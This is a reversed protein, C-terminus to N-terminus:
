KAGNSWGNPVPARCGKFCVRCKDTWDAVVGVVTFNKQTLRGCRATMKQLRESNEYQSGNVQFEVADDDNIKRVASTKVNRVLVEANWFNRAPEKNVPIRIVEDDHEEDSMQDEPNSTSSTSDSSSMVEVVNGDVPLDDAQEIEDKVQGDHDQEPGTLVDAFAEKVNGATPHTMPAKNKEEDGALFAPTKPNFTPMPTGPVLPNHEKFYMSRPQDPEFLGDRIVTLVWAFARVPSFALDHSYVSDADKLSSARRGLLRRQERPVEAKSCWSLGTVKMAHSTLRDDECQLMQRLLLTTELCGLPRQLWELAGAKNGRLDPAPQLAGDIKGAIPLGAKRRIRWTALWDDHTVGASSAM